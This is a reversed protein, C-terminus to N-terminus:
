RLKVSFFYRKATSIPANNMEFFHSKLVMNAFEVFKQDCFRGSRRILTIVFAVARGLCNLITVRRCRLM